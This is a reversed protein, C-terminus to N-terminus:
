FNGEVSSTMSYSGSAFIGSDSSATSFSILLNVYRTITTSSSVNQSATNKWTANGAGLSYWTNLAASGSTPPVGTVLQARVWINNGIGATQPDHYLDDYVVENLPGGPLTEVYCVIRGDGYVVVKTVASITSGPWLVENSWERNVLSTVFGGGSRGHFDAFSIPGAPIGALARVDPDGLSIPQGVRNLESAISQGPANGGLQIPGSSNMAM